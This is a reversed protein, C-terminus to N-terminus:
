KQSIIKDLLFYYLKIAKLKVYKIVVSNGIIEGKMFERKGILKQFRPSKAELPVLGRFLKESAGFVGKLKNYLIRDTKM